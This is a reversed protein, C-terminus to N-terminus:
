KASLEKSEASAPDRVFEPDFGEITEATLTGRFVVRADGTMRVDRIDGGALQFMVRVVIGSRTMVSVPSVVKGFFASVSVAAVIGSGCALTEAEVGREYTRIEIAHEDRVVVFNVNAGAPQLEAHRRIARGLTAIEQSWLTERLFIVYHPVGVVISSGRILTDGIEIPREARFARPQPMAIMVEGSEFVEASVVAADTEITMRPGAMGHLLAFRAACRTGNGCFEGLSGDANWYRMRITARSSEEMLILGDAGVSLARVCIRRALAGGDAIRGSRNDIMVFDNGAGSMKTFAVPDQKGAQIQGSAAM